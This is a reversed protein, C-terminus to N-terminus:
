YIELISSFSQLVRHKTGQTYGVEDAVFAGVRSRFSKCTRIICVAEWTAVNRAKLSELNPHSTAQVLIVKSYVKEM